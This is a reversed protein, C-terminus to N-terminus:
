VLIGNRGGCHGGGGCHRDGWVRKKIAKVGATGGDGCHM